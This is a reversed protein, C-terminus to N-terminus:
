VQGGDIAAKSGLTARRAYLRNVLILSWVIVVGIVWLGDPEMHVVTGIGAGIILPLLFRTIWDSPTM